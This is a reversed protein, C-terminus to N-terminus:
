YFQGMGNFNQIDKFTKTAPMNVIALIKKSDLLKGVKSVIHGLIVGLYVLLMCKKLNLSIGFEWCKDFRLWLKALHMKLDNVVSFDDMFLKMFVGLYECFAMNMTWQYTPPVNKLGFPMVIWIFTRSNIIFFIKYKDEMTITIHHYGLFGDLFSYVEHGVVMDLVEEMFPLIYPDKKRFCEFKPFGHM